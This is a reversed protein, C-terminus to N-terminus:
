RPDRPGNQYVALRWTGGDRVLIWSARIADEDSLEGADARIVGGETILAVADASLPKVELPRGTVRTGKYHSAFAAEMFSRIEDRGKRYLGPLIMTGGDLFLDAFADADHEAWAKIMRAPVAAVAAQDAASFANGTTTTM